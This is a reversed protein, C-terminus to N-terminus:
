QGFSRQLFAAMEGRTVPRAPQFAGDVDGFVIGAHYLASIAAAHPSAPNVDAFPLSTSATLVEGRAAALLTAMQERTIPQNPGFTGDLAGKAIDAEALKAIGPAHTHASTVDTFYDTRDPAPLDLAAALFTALQGRNVVDVPCFRRADCGHTIGTDALWLIADHHSFTAPVDTFRRAELPLDGDAKAALLSAYPNMRHTGDPDTVREDVIEFHLHPWSPSANGSHGLYGILQGREVEVGRAIGAAYAETPPGDQRGLHLYNYRRGDDGDIGITYGASAHPGSADMGTLWTVTGGVAAHVPLGYADRGGLDTAKHIRTGGGRAGHYDDSFSVAGDVPFTLDVVADYSPGPVPEPEVPETPVPAPVLPDVTQAHAAPAMAAVAVLALVAVAPRTRRSM